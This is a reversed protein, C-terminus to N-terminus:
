VKIERVGIVTLNLGKNIVEKATLNDSARKSATRGPNAGASVKYGNIRREGRVSSGIL